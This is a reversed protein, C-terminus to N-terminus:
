SSLMTRSHNSQPLSSEHGPDDLGVLEGLGVAGVAPDDLDVQLDILTLCEAEEPGVPGALGRRDARQEVVDSRRAARGPDEPDVRRDVRHRDMTADAVQRALEREIVPPWVM